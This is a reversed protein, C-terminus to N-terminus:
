GLQQARVQQGLRPDGRRLHALEPRQQPVPDAQDAEAGLQAVPDVRDGGVVAVVPGGAVPGPRAAAPQGLRTRGGADRSIMVSQRATISPRAGTVPRISPSSCWCALPSGPDLHEPRQGADPLEGRQDHHGLDAVDGPEAAGALQGAPGPQGRRHAARVEFDPVPVDGSCPEAHSRHTM